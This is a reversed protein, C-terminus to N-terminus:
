QRLPTSSELWLYRPKTPLRTYMYTFSYHTAFIEATKSNKEFLALFKHSAGFNWSIVRSKKFRISFKYLAKLVEFPVLFVQFAGFIESICWSQIKINEM